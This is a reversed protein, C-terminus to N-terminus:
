RGGIGLATRMLHYVANQEMVGRALRAGPGTAYLPVDEGSHTEARLPIAAEQRYDPDQVEADRANAPLQRGAGPGNLYGLTTYPRGDAALAVPHHSDADPRIRRSLGLIPNGRPPYGAITLTHSHDATVLVLTDAPDVLALARAVAEAFARGEDLARFANGAHHAHDIRGGEVMLFFGRARGATRAQLLRIAAETMRALSPQDLKRTRRDHDFALHSPAFLGLLQSDPAPAFQALARATTVVQRHNGAAKWAAILDRGDKRRGGQSAPLFSARGGGLAVDIGDGHSFGAFQAAIDRCGAERASKPMDADAEWDRDPAHAYAAAPTAHTLRTTTVIGTAFGRDELEELITPVPQMARCDGDAGSRIALVGIDTKIGTYLASATGASDPVQANVNYTKVLATYPFREFPLVYEEGPLGKQQGVYIRMATVTSVGMGDGIFLIVNRARRTLPTAALREAIAQRGPAWTPDSLRPDGASDAEAAMAPAAPIDALALLVTALLFLRGARLISRQERDRQRKDHHM